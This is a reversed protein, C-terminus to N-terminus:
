IKVIDDITATAIPHYGSRAKAYIEKSLDRTKPNDWLAQYLPKLFKRRGQRMLFHEVAPLAPKYTNRIAVMGWAFLVESNGTNSFNCHEDLKKLKAHDVKEPLSNLFDLWEETVWGKKDIFDLNGTESFAKAAARTKDFKESKPIVMNDPVGAQYVWEDVKLEKWATENGQFLEKKMFALFKATTMSQFAHTDFYKILFADFARRGFYKELVFLFNAGKEYPVSSFADDPDHGSLDQFLKAFEKNKAGMEAIEHHLERQGLLTHMQATEKGYLEEVIRREFYVTFGENLWFDSWTANTVLNGSWSHALEHAMVNVLSRDGALLTPTAFTLMPNEMGGFPFSPPLVITDWREWRYEGYLGEAAKMMKEMDAFEWAAKELVAPEAYVGCRDSIAKFEIEGAALAILYPPIARKLEFRYIGKEPEHKGHAASMIPTIGKPVRIVADYTVRVGPSDMCPFWTRSLIAQGQTLLFPHKKSTTMRPELWQLAGAAPDTHYHIEIKTINPNPLKVRLRRGLLSENEGLDFKLTRGTGPEVVKTVTLMRTDLDIHAAGKKPDAYKLTLECSGSIVKKDFDLSLDLSVHSTQVQEVNGYTHIDKFSYAFM